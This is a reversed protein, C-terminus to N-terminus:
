CSIQYNHRLCEGHDRVDMFKGGVFRVILDQLRHERAKVRTQHLSGPSEWTLRVLRAAIYDARGFNVINTFHETDWAVSQYGCILRIDRALAVEQVIWMREWYECDFIRRLARDDERSWLAADSRLLAKKWRASLILKFARKSNADAPGLWVLVAKANQYISRMQQVQYNREAINEQDICIADIWLNNCFGQRKAGRIEPLSQLLFWLNQRVLFPKGNLEVWCQPSSPGWTYSLAYYQALSPKPEDSLPEEGERGRMQAAAIIEQRITCRVMGDLRPRLISLIRFSHATELAEYQFPPLDSPPRSARKQAHRLGLSSSRYCSLPDM